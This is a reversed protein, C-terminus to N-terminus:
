ETVQLKEFHKYSQIFNSLSFNQGFLTQPVSGLMILVIHSLSAERLDVATDSPVRQSFFSRLFSLHNLVIKMYIKFM